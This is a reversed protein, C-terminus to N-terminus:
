FMCWFSQRFESGNDFSRGSEGNNIATLSHVPMLLLDGFEGEPHEHDHAGDKNESEDSSSSDSSDYGGDESIGEAVADHDCDVDTDQGQLSDTVSSTSSMAARSVVAEVVGAMSQRREAGAEEHSHSENSDTRSPVLVPVSPLPASSEHKSSLSVDDKEKEKSLRPSIGNSSRTHRDFLQKNGEVAAHLVTSAMMESRNAALLSHNKPPAM